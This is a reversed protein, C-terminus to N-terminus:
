KFVFEITQVLFSTTKVTIPGFFEFFIWNKEFKMGWGIFVGMTQVCKV